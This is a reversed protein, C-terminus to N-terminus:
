NFVQQDIAFVGYMFIKLPWWVANLFADWLRGRAGAWFATYNTSYTTLQFEGKEKLELRHLTEQRKGGYYMTTLGNVAAGLLYGLASYKYLAPWTYFDM